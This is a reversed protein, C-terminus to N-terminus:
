HGGSPTRWHAKGFTGGSDDHDHVEILNGKYIYRCLREPLGKRCVGTVRRVSGEPLGKQCVGEPLGKREHTDALSLGGSPTQLYRDAM